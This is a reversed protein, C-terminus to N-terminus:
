GLGASAARLRGQRPQFGLESCTDCIGRKRCKTKWCEVSGLQAFVIRSLHDSLLGRLLVLDGARLETLLFEAAQEALLFDFVREPPLGAEVARRKGYASKEGIFVCVEAVRVAAEALHRMRHRYNTGSDTFDSVVLWRRGARAEELVKLAPGLSEISGNFEDRLITVGNPLEVPQMRAPFPEVDRLPRAAQELTL